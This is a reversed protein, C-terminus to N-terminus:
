PTEISGVMFLIIKFVTPPVESPELFNSLPNMGKQPGGILIIAKVM